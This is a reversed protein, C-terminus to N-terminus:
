KRLVDVKYMGNEKVFNAMGEFTLPGEYDVPSEKNGAPFLKITPVGRIDFAVDNAEIDIKGVTVQSGESGSKYLNALKEYAPAMVKCPGCWQTYFEVLVDNDNHIVVDNFSHGVIVIVSSEQREPIPESHIFPKLENKFYQQIFQDLQERNLEGQEFHYQQNKVPDKVVFAPWKDPQLHM